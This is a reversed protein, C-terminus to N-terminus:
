RLVGVLRSGGHLDDEDEFDLSLSLRQSKGAEPLPVQDAMSGASHTVKISCPTDDVVTEGARFVQLFRYEPRPVDIFITARSLNGEAPVLRFGEALLENKEVNGGEADLVGRIGRPPKRGRM